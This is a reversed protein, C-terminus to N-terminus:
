AEGLRYVRRMRGGTAQEAYEMRKQNLLATRVEEHQRDPWPLKRNILWFPMWEDGKREKWKRLIRLLKKCNAEFDSESVHEGAMFLMRRTQHTVFAQAWRAAPGDIVPNSHNESCAYVLALRRAKENARAWIAMGVQDNKSEALKYQEDAQQRLQCLIAAAEPTHEIVRPTPHWVGLNGGGPRLDAWFRATTLISAPIDEVAAEQGQGRKGAELVLMRAFFGNNLMAVSLAEYFRDPIATGFLCLCPQDIVGRSNNKGAKVRMPYLSNASTFMKLLVNMIGEYRVDRGKHIATMLADVEDTQFLMAPQVFMRDEIGEGSAFTDGIAESMGALLLVKTNVKRPYDKGTGSNALGLVYLNTRNDAPDRVKRGALFAQLSLAGCFALVHDPYPATKLTYDMVEAVFGPVRLLETPLPGPDNPLEEPGEPAPSDFASLDVDPAVQPEVGFGQARLSSAAAAFDGSHELWAHVAFPSYSRPAEFPAANTSHVYFVRDKLTASWGSDKGPRRWYENDGGKVLTWGHKLLVERVDGRQNFDDGPRGSADAPMSVPAPDPIMENLSWAASLLIDRHEGSLVPLATFAGQLVEYGPSPACLFLGGEGRTEILTVPRGNEGHRQALKMNGCVPEACRYVVHKGGSQSREVLLQTLLGPAETEVVAAWRDFMVGGRDFDIMELNGSVAGTLLCLAHADAFWEAVQAESPLSKQYPKWAALAPRKQDLIAPLVCLGSRLYTTAIQADM